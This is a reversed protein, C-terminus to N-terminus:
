FDAEVLGLELIESDPIAWRKEERTGLESGSSSLNAIMARGIPNDLIKAPSDLNPFATKFAAKERYTTRVSRKSWSAVEEASPEKGLSEKAAAWKVAWVLGSVAIHLMGSNMVAFELLTMPKPTRVRTM